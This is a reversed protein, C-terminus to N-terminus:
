SSTQGIEAAANVRSFLKIVAACKPLEKAMDVRMLCPPIGVPTIVVESCSFHPFNKSYRMLCPLGREPSHAQLHLATPFGKASAEEEKAVLKVGSAFGQPHLSHPIATVLPRPQNSGPDLCDIIHM